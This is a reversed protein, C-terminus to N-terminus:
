GAVPEGDFVLLTATGDVHARHRVGAPVAFFQGTAVVVTDGGEIDVHVTGSLVVFCEQGAHQHFAASTDRMARYRLNAGAQSILTHSFWNTDSGAGLTQLVIPALDTSARM